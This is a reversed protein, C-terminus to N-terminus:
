VVATGEGSQPQLLVPHTPDRPDPDLDSLDLEALEEEVNIQPPSQLPRSVSSVTEQGWSSYGAEPHDRPIVVAKSSDLTDKMEQKVKTIEDGLKFLPVLSTRQARMSTFMKNKFEFSAKYGPIKEFDKLFSKQVLDREFKKKQEPVLTLNKAM